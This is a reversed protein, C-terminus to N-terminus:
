RFRRHLLMALMSGLGGGTGMSLAAQWLPLGGMAISSIIFVECFGMGLSTPLVWWYKDHMVNLQQIARFFVFLSMCSGLYFLTM